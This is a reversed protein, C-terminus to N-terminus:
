LRIGFAHARIVDELTVPCDILPQCAPSAPAVPPSELDWQILPVYLHSAPEILGKSELEALADLFEQKQEPNLAQFQQILSKEKEIRMAPTQIRLHSTAVNGEPDCGLVRLSDLLKPTCPEYLLL